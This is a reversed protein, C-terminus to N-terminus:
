KNVVKEKNLTFQNEYLKYYPIIIANCVIHTKESKLYQNHQM